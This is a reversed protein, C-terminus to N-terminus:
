LWDDGFLVKCYTAAPSSQRLAHNHNQIASLFRENEVVRIRADRAAFKRAIALTEDTSCNNVITCDWNSYTQALVSEICESLYEGCNYAPTVISVLPSAQKGM